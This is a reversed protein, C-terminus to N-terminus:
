ATAISGAQSPTHLSVKFGPGDDECAWFVTTSNFNPTTPHSHFNYSHAIEYGGSLLNREANSSLFPPRLSTEWGTATPPEGLVATMLGDGSFWDPEVDGTQFNAGEKSVGELSRFDFDGAFHYESIIEVKAAGEIKMGSDTPPPSTVFISAENSM